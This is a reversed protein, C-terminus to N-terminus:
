DEKSPTFTPDILPKLRARATHLRSKITGIPVSFLAALEASNRGEYYHLHLLRSDASSLQRMATLLDISIGHDVAAPVLAPDAGQDKAAERNRIARRIVDIARRHVITMSWNKFQAPDRLRHINQAMTLVADQVIDEALEPVKSGAFRLWEAHWITILEAFARRAEPATRDQALAALYATRRNRYSTKDGM